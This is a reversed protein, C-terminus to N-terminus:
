TAMPDASPGGGVQAVPKLAKLAELIKVMALTDQRCYALLALKLRHREANDTGHRLMREWALGAVGGDSVEMGEYSLEPVLAPLVAKISFSGNFHPHYVHRKVFPLLDWLRQRIRKIREGYAPLWGALEELRQSEFGANYVVIQGRKGLAQCLSDIFDHRPDGDDDALFEFHELPADPTSQLHVSWQFPIQAYPRMGAFRPIAPYLSEFDMFYLPYKLRRVEKQLTKSVWRRGTRVARRVRSQIETLPFDDPIERILSIGLDCLDQAKTQSM